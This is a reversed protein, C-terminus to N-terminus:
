NGKDTLFRGAFPEMSHGSILSDFDERARERDAIHIFQFLSTSYLRDKQYGFLNFFAKNCKKIYGDFGILCYRMLSPSLTGAM